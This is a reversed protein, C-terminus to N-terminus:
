GTAASTAPQRDCLLVYSLTLTEGRLRRTVSGADTCGPAPPSGRYRRALVWVREDSREPPREGVFAAVQPYTECTRFPRPDGVGDDRRISKTYCYVTVDAPVRRLAERTSVWHMDLEWRDNVPAALANKYVHQYPFLAAQDVVPALLAVILVVPGLVPVRCLRAAAVAALAAIAPLV